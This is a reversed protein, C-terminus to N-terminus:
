PETQIEIRQKSNSSPSSNGRETQLIEYNETVTKNVSSTNINTENEQKLINIIADKEILEEELSSICNKLIELLLVPNENDSCIVNNKGSINQLAM